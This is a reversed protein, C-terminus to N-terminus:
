TDAVGCFIISRPGAAEVCDPHWRRTDTSLLVTTDGYTPERTGAGAKLLRSQHERFGIGILQHHKM